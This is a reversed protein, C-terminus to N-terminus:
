RDWPVRLRTSFLFWITPFTSFHFLFFRKVNWLHHVSSTHLSTSARWDNAPSTSVAVVNSAVFTALDSSALWHLAVHHRWSLDSTKGATTFTSITSNFMGLTFLSFRPLYWPTYPSIHSHLIVLKYPSKVSVSIENIWVHNMCFTRLDTSAQIERRLPWSWSSSWCASLLRPCLLCPSTFLSHPLPLFLYPPSLHYIM